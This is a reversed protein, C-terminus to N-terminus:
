VNAPQKLGNAFMGMLPGQAPLHTKYQIAVIIILRQKNRIHLALLHSSKHKGFAGLYSYNLVNVPIRYIVVLIVFEM